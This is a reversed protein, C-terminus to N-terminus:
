PAPQMSLSGGLAYLNWHFGRVGAAAAVKLQPPPLLRIADSPCIQSDPGPCLAAHPDHSGYQRCYSLASCCASGVVPLMERVAAKAARRTERKYKKPLLCASRYHLCRSSVYKYHTLSSIEMVTTGPPAHPSFAALCYRACSLQCLTQCNPVMAVGLGRGPTLRQFGGYRSM